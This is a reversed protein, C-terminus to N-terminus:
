GRGREEWGLRWHAYVAPRMRHARPEITARPARRALLADMHARQVKPAKLARGKRLVRQREEDRQAIRLTAVEKRRGKVPPQRGRTEILIKLLKPQKHLEGRCVVPPRTHIEEGRGVPRLHTADYHVPPIFRARRTREM